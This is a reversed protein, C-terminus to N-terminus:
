YSSIRRSNRSALQNRLFSVSAQLFSPDRCPRLSRQDEVRFGLILHKVSALVITNYTTLVVDYELLEQARTAKKMRSSSHHIYVKLPPDTKTRIENYWQRLLAVPTCILTTKCKDDDSRRTVLLAISDDTIYSIYTGKFPKVLVWRM